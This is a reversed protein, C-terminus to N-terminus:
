IMQKGSCVMLMCWAAPVPIEGSLRGKPRRGRISNHGYIFLYIYICMYVYMYIYIFM